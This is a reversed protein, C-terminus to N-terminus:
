KLAVVSGLSDIVRVDGVAVLDMEDVREVLNAMSQLEIYELNLKKNVRQMERIRGELEDIRYGQTASSNTQALYFGTTLLVLTVAMTAMKGPTFCKKCGTFFKQKKNLEPFHHNSREKKSFRCM